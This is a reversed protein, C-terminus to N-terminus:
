RICQNSETAQIKEKGHGLKPILVLRARKMQAPFVGRALADNAIKLFVEGAKRIAARAISPLVGDPGPAKNLKIRTAAERLEESTFPEGDPGDIVDERERDTVQPFLKSAVMWQKDSGMRNGNNGYVKKVVMRYGNGWEDRDLDKILNRWSEKKAHRIARNYISKSSKYQERARQKEEQTGSKNTRTFHRRKRLCDRRCTKVEEGWWYVRRGRGYAAERRPFAEECSERVCEIYRGYEPQWGSAQEWDLRNALIESFNDLRGVTVRWGGKSKATVVQKRCKYEYTILNHCGLMEEEEVRWNNIREAIGSSCMTIDIYSKQQHREFTPRGGRNLITLDAGSAWDMVAAGRADETPSGWEYAKANFDGGIIVPKRRKRVDKGLETVFTDFANYGTNPSCYCAYVVLEELEAWVYGDGSGSDIIPMRGNVMVLAADQRTDLLWGRKTATKRNPESVVIIDVEKHAARRYALDFTVNRRDVNIQEFRVRTAATKRTHTAVGRPTM